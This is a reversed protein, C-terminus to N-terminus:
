QAAHPGQHAWREAPSWGTSLMVTGPHRGEGGALGGLNNSGALLGLLQVAAQRQLGRALHLSLRPRIHLLRDMVQSGLADPGLGCGVRPPQIGHHRRGNLPDARRRGSVLRCGNLLGLHSFRGFRYAHGTTGGDGCVGACRHRSSVCSTQDRVESGPERVGFGPDQQWM